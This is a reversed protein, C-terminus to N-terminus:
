QQRATIAPLSLLTSCPPFIALLIQWYRSFLNISYHQCAILGKFVLCEVCDCALSFIKRGVDVELGHSLRFALSGLKSAALWERYPSPSEILRLPFLSAFGMPFDMGESLLFLWRKPCHCLLINRMPWGLPFRLTIAERRRRCYEVCLICFKDLLKNQSYTHVIVTPLSGWCILMNWLCLTSCLDIAMPVAVFTGRFTGRLLALCVRWGLAHNLSV